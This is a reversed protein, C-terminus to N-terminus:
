QKRTIFEQFLLGTLINDFIVYMYKKFQLKDFLSCLNFGPSGVQEFSKPDTCMQYFFRNVSSIM